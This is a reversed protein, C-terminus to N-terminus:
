YHAAIQPIWLEKSSCSKRCCLKRHARRTKSLVNTFLGKGKDKGKNETRNKKTSKERPCPSSISPFIIDNM